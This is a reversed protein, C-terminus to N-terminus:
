LPSLDRNPLIQAAAAKFCGYLKLGHDIMCLGAGRFPCPGSRLWLSCRVKKKEGCISRKESLQQRELAINYSRNATVGGSKARKVVMRDLFALSHGPELDLDPSRLVSQILLVASYRSRTIGFSPM